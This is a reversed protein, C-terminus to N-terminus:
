HVPQSDTLESIVDLQIKNSHYFEFCLHTQIKNKKGKIKNQKMYVFVCVFFCVCLSSNCENTNQRSKNDKRVSM